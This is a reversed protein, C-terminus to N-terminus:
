QVLSRAWHSQARARLQVLTRELQDQAEAIRTASDGAGARARSRELALRLAELRQQAGARLRRELHRREEDGARVLRGRSADIEEVQARVDAQLEANAAALRAATALADVLAPADLVAPDHVLAAVPAGRRELKTVHRGADPAPLRVPRGEADVYARAAPVWYGIELSPDGLASALAARLTGPQDGLDVVLDAVTARAREARDLGLLLGVAIACLTLQYALLTSEQVDSASAAALRAVASGGLVAAFALAAATGPVRAARELEGPVLQRTVATVAIALALAITVTDSDWLPKVVAAGYGVAVAALEVRGRPRGRPYTLVLQLLPGRHLYVLQDSFNAAFWAAGAAVLLPGSANRPRRSWAILGCGILAWGAALDPVWHRADGLGYYSAEAAIGLAAGAPWLLLRLRATM